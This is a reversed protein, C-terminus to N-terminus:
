ARALRPMFEDELWEHRPAYQPGRNWPQSCEVVKEESFWDDPNRPRIKKVMWREGDSEDMLIDGVMIGPRWEMTTGPSYSSSLRQLMSSFQSTDVDLMTIHESM